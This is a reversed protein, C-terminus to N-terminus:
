RSKGTETLILLKVEPDGSYPEVISGALGGNGGADRNATELRKRGARLAYRRKSVWVTQTLQRNGERSWSVVMAAAKDAVECRRVRRIKISTKLVSVQAARHWPAM